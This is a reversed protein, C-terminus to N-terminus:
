PQKIKPNTFSVKAFAVAFLTYIITLVWIYKSAFHNNTLSKILALAAIFFHAFNGLSLPKSYIGGIVLNKAMWNMAAFGFYLAGMIQATLILTETPTQHLNSLIEKPLFILVIGLIGMVVSSATMLLKTNM